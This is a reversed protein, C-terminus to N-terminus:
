WGSIMFTYLLTSIFSIVWSRFLILSFSIIKAFFISLSFAYIKFFVGRHQTSYIGIGPYPDLFKNHQPPHCMPFFVTRPMQMHLRRQRIAHICEREGVSGNTEVTHSHNERTLDTKLHLHNGQHMSQM